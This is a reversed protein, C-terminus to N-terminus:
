GRRFSMSSWRSRRTGSSCACSRPRLHSTRALCLCPSQTPLFPSPSRSPSALSCAHFYALKRVMFYFPEPDRDPEYLRSMLPYVATLVTTSLIEVVGFVIVSAATLYGTQTAGLLSTSMLKDLQIYVINIVGGIALPLANVFLPRAIRREFPWSPRTGGRAMFWWLIAARILSTVITIAYLGMLGGGLALVAAGAAIRMVVTAIEVGSTVVMREHAILQDFAVSGLIDTLLAICAIATFARIDAPYGLVYAM